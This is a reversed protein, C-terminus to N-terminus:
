LKILLDSKRKKRLWQKIIRRAEPNDSFPKVVNRIEVVKDADFQRDIFGFGQYAHDEVWIVAREDLTRGETILLFSQPNFRYESFVKRVRYNYMKAPVGKISFKRDPSFGCLEPVIEYQEIVRQIFFEVSRRTTLKLIEEEDPNLMRIDITVYGNKNKGPYVGYRYKKGRQMSNYPPWYRKIESNELLLAALESGTVEYNIDAVEKKLKQMKVNEADTSFHTIIRKRINKSKGIYM